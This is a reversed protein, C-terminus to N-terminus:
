QFHAKVSRAYKMMDKLLTKYTSSISNELRDYVYSEISYHLTSSIATEGDFITVDAVTDMDSPTMSCYAIYKEESTTFSGSSITRVKSAGKYDTYSVVLKVNSMDQSSNFRM